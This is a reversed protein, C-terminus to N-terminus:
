LLIQNNGIESEIMLGLPDRGVVEFCAEQHLKQHKILLNQKELIYCFSM